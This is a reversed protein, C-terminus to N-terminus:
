DYFFDLFILIIAYVKTYTLKKTYRQLRLPKQLFICTDSRTFPIAADCLKAIAALAFAIFAAPTSTILIDSPSGSISVGSCM